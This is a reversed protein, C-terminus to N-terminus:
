AYAALHPAIAQPLAVPNVEHYTVPLSCQQQLRQADANQWQNDILECGAAVPKMAMTSLGQKKALYLLAVAIETKGVHTDTGTVFLRYLM